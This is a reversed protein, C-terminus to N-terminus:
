RMKFTVTVNFYVSVPRGQVTAPKYKWQLVADKATKEFYPYDARLTKIQEVDGTKTIVAELIVIGQLRSRIAILPYEPEVRRILVPASVDPTIVRPAEPGPTSSIGTGIPSNGYGGAVGEPNGEGPPLSADSFASDGSEIPLEPQPELDEILTPQFEKIEQSPKRIVSKQKRQGGGLAPPPGIQVRIPELYRISLPPPEVAEVRWYSAFTVSVIVAAHLIAAAPLTWLRQRDRRFENSEILTQEWM